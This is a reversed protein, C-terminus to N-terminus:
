VVGLPSHLLAAPPGALPLPASYLEGGGCGGVGIGKLRGRRGLFIDGSATGSQAESGGPVVSCRRGALAAAAAAPVRLTQGAAPLLGRLAMQRRPRVRARGGTLAPQPAGAKGAKRASGGAATGAVEMRFRRDRLALIGPLAFWLWRTLLVPIRKGLATWKSVRERLKESPLARHGFRLTVGALHGSGERTM